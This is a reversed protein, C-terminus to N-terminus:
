EELRSLRSVWHLFLLVRKTVIGLHRGGRDGLEVGEGVGERNGDSQTGNSM